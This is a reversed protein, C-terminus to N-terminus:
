KAGEEDINLTAPIFNVSIMPAAIGVENNYSIETVNKLEKGDIFIRTHGKDNQKIDVNNGKIGM